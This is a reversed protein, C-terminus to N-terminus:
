KSERKAQKAKAWARMEEIERKSPRQSERKTTTDTKPEEIPEIDKPSQKYENYKEQAYSVGKTLFSSLCVNVDELGHMRIDVSDGKQLVDITIRNAGERVPHLSYFKIGSPMEKWDGANSEKEERKKRLRECLKSFIGMTKKKNHCSGRM